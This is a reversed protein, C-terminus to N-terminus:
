PVITQEINAFITDYLSIAQLKLKDSDLRAQATAWNIASADDVLTDDKLARRLRDAIVDVDDHPVIFGSKGDKIWETCCSTDTQIPLAGLALSELMSTSIADSASIGVYVRARGFMRLMMDHACQELVSIDLNSFNKLENVRALVEPSTSFTVVKYGELEPICREVANLATLGRGAFHQYGKVMILKRRSPKAVERKHAVDAINLGGTNPIVPMIQAELGLERAIAVDRECECSYYDINKLLRSIQQRHKDFQRYYYIDSGWNTALWSPFGNRSLEKARLVNYGCHQFELSHVLDPQLKRILKKLMYPGYFMPAKQESEGLQVWRMANLYPAAAAPIPLPNIARVPTKHPYLEAESCSLGRMMLRPRTLATKLFLRPRIIRWPQHITINKLDHHVPLYNVPFLHLDWGEDAIQNIWRATHISMQMAVFLIKRSTM